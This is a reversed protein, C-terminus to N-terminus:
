DMRPSGVVRDLYTSGAQSAYRTTGDAGKEEGCHLCEPVGQPVGRWRAVSRSGIIPQQWGCPDFRPIQGM